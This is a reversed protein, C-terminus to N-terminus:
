LWIETKRKSTLSHAFPSPFFIGFRYTKPLILKFKFNKQANNFIYDGKSDSAETTLFSKPLIKM